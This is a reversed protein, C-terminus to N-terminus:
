KQRRRSMRKRKGGAYGHEQHYANESNVPLATGYEESSDAAPEVAAAPVAAPPATVDRPKSPAQLAPAAPVTDRPKSPAQGAPPPSAAADDSAAPVDLIGKGMLEDLFTKLDVKKEMVQENVAKTENVSVEGMKELSSQIHLLSILAHIRSAADILTDIESM